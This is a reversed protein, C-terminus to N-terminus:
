ERGRDEKLPSFIRHTASALFSVLPLAVLLMSPSLPLIIYEENALDKVYM